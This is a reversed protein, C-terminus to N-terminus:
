LSRLTVVTLKRLCVRLHAPLVLQLRRPTPSNLFLISRNAGSRLALARDTSPPYGAGADIWVPSTVAHSARYSALLYYPGPGTAASRSLAWTMRAAAAGTSVCTATRLARVRASREVTLQRRSASSVQTAVAARRARGRDDVQVLPGDLVGDVQPHNSYLPAIWALRDYPAFAPQVIYPPVLADAIVPRRGDRSLAAVSSGLRTEWSRAQPGAWDRQMKVDTWVALALYGMLAALALTEPLRPWRVSNASVRSGPDDPSPELVTRRAFAFCVALPILWAFDLLYRIDDAIVVGFSAVRARAVVVGTVLVTVALFLWARWASPKRVLSIVLALVIAAQLAAAALVQLTTLGSAPLTLGIAAPALAQIWLIRFYHVYEAFNVTGSAVGVFGGAHRFGAAWAVEVVVLAGWLVRASWFRRALAVPHLDRAFFLIEILALYLLMYAPKEYFALGAALGAASVLVWRSSRDARYRIFGYLCALDFFTNPLYQFGGAPWQLGRVFLVSIGFWAAVALALRESGFLLSIIRQLLYTSGGLLLLMAVLGWRYDLMPRAVLWYALRYALGWHQFTLTDLWAWNLPSHRAEVLILNDDYVWGGASLVAYWAILQAAILLLTARRKSV